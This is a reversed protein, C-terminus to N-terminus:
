RMLLLQNSLYLDKRNFVCVVHALKMIYTGIDKTGGNGALIMGDRDGLSERVFVM